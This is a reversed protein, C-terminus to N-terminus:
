RDKNGYLDERYLYIRLYYHKNYWNYFPEVEAIRYGPLLGAYGSADDWTEWIKEAAARTLEGTREKPVPTELNRTTLVRGWSMGRLMYEALGRLGTRGKKLTRVDTYGQGWLADMTAPCIDANVCVHIHPRGGGIDGHCVAVLKLEGLGERAFYRALRRKFAQWAKIWAARSEPLHANDFSLLWLGDGSKYNADLQWAVRERANFDNLRQQVDSTPRYRGGRKRGTRFVPFVSVTAYEGHYVTQERYLARM